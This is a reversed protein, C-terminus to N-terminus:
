SLLRKLSICIMSVNYVARRNKENILNDTVRAFEAFYWKAFTNVFDVTIRKDDIRRRSIAVHFRLFDKITALDSPPIGERLRQPRTTHCADVKVGKDSIVTGTDRKKKEIADMWRNSQILVAVELFDLLCKYQSRM